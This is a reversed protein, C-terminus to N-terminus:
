GAWSTFKSCLFPGISSLSKERTLGCGCESSSSCQQGIASSSRSACTGMYCEIPFSDAFEIFQREDYAEGLPKAVRCAIRCVVTGNINPAYDSDEACRSCPPVVWLAQM